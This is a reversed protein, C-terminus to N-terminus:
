TNRTSKRKGYADICLCPKPDEAPIKVKQQM